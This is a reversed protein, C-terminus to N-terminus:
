DPPLPSKPYPSSTYSSSGRAKEEAREAKEAAKVGRAQAGRLAKDLPAIEKALGQGAAVYSQARAGIKEATEDSAGFAKAVSRAAEKTMATAMGKNHQGANYDVESQNVVAKNGFTMDSTLSRNSGGGRSIEFTSVSGDQNNNFKYSDGKHLKLGEVDEKRLQINPNEKQMQAVMSDIQGNFRNMLAKDQKSDGITGTQTQLQTDKIDHGSNGQTYVGRGRNDSTVTGAHGDTGDKAGDHIVGETHASGGRTGGVTQKAGAQVTYGHGNLDEYHMDKQTSDTHGSVNGFKGDKERNYKLTMGEKFSNIDDKIGFNKNIQRAMEGTLKNGGKEFEEFETQSVSRGLLQGLGKAGAQSMTTNAVKKAAETDSIQKTYESNGGVQQSTKEQAITRTAADTGQAAADRAGARYSEGGLHKKHELNAGIGATQKFSEAEHRQGISYRASNDNTALASTAERMKSAQGELTALSSSKAGEGQITGQFQGAMQGMVAGGFHMLTTTILTALM